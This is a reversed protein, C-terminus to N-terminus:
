HGHIAHSLLAEHVHTLIERIATEDPTGAAAQLEQRACKAAIPSMARRRVLASLIEEADPTM